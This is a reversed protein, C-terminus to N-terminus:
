IDTKIEMILRQINMGCKEYFQIARENFNWCNLEVADYNKEKAIRKVESFLNKGIGMRRAKEDVVLEDIWLTTRDKLNIHEKVEKIKYIIVGYINNDEEAVLINEKNKIRNNVEAKIEEISKEKFIDKRANSHIEAVQLMLESIKNVDEIQANRINMNKYGGYIVIQM